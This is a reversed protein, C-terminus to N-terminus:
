RPPKPELKPANELLQKSLARQDALNVGAEAPREPEREASFQHDTRLAAPTAADLEKELAQLREETMDGKDVEDKATELADEYELIQDREDLLEARRDRTAEFVEWRDRNDRIEDPDLEDESLENGHEDFARQGDETKFARRGDPLVHAQDLHSRYASEAAVLQEENRLLAETSAVLDRQIREEFDAIQTSGALKMASIMQGLTKAKEAEEKERRKALERRRDFEAAAQAKRDRDSNRIPPLNGM